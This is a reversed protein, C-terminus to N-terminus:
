NTSYVLTLENGPSMERYDDMMSRMKRSMYDEDEMFPKGNEVPINWVLHTPKKYASDNRNVIKTLGWWRFNNRLIEREFVPKWVESEYKEYDDLKQSMTGFYMKDGIKLNGGALPTADILQITYQRVEKKLKNGNKVIRDVSKSSMKGKMGNKMITIAKNMSWNKMFNEMQEKSSFQNFVVYHAANENDNQRPTRKWVSWGIKENSDVSKQHYAKWVKELQHYDSEKGENLVIFDASVYQALSFLPILLILFFIKKM